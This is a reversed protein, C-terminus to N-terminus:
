VKWCAAEARKAKIVDVSKKKKKKKIIKMEWTFFNEM